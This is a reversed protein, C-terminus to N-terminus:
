SNDDDAIADYEQGRKVKVPKDDDIRETEGNRKILYLLFNLQINVGQAIAAAKIEHGTHEGRSIRVPKTNVKIDVEKEAARFAFREIGPSALDVVADDDLEEDPEGEHEIVVFVNEQLKSAIRKLTVPTILSIPWRERKGDLQFLFERDSRSVIFREVTGLHLHVHAYPDLDNLEGSSFWRLIVFDAPPVFGGAELLGTGTPSAGNVSITRFELDVGAIAVDYAGGGLRHDAEADREVVDNM